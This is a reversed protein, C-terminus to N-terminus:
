IEYDDMICKTHAQAPITAWERRMIYAIRDPAATFWGWVKHCAEAM